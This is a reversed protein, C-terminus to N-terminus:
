IDGRTQLPDWPQQVFGSSLFAPRVAPDKSCIERFVCGGYNDCATDNMPWNDTLANQEAQKVYWIFDTRWEDLQRETRLTFGREFRSFGKAIQAADIIGGRVPSEYLVRSAFTYGTMQNDPSFKAFYGWSSNGNITTKTTKRDLFYIIGGLDVLRDLHGSHLLEEGSSEFTYGLEYRFSLEVAPKGNPLRVTKCPDKIGFQDLYWIVTRFLAPVTKPDLKAKEESLHEHPNWWSIKGDEAMNTCGDRLDWLAARLAQEHDLGQFIKHDYVELGRHYLQGYRLHHSEHKPRWGDIIQLKYKRWCVKAVGMSVSDWAIQLGPVTASFSLRSNARPTQLVIESM